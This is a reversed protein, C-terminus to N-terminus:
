KLMVFYTTLYKHRLIDLRREPLVRRHDTNIALKVSDLIVRFIPRQYTQLMINLGQLHFFFVQRDVTSPMPEQALGFVVILLLPVSCANMSEAAQSHINHSWSDPAGAM